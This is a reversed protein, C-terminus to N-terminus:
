LTKLDVPRQTKSSELAARIFALAELGGEGDTEPKKGTRICDAFEDVEELIPDGVPLPILEPKDGGTYRELTTYRDVV